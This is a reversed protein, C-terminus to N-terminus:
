EVFFIIVEKYSSGTMGNIPPPQMLAPLPGGLWAGVGEGASSQGRSSSCSAFASPSIPLKLVRVAVAMQATLPTAAPPKVNVGKLSCATRPGGTPCIFIILWSSLSKLDKVIVWIESLSCIVMNTVSLLFTLFISYGYYHLIPKLPFFMCHEWPTPLFYNTPMYLMLKNESSRLECQM